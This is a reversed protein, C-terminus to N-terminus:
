RNIQMVLFDPATRYYIIGLIGANSATNMDLMPLANLTDVSKFWLYHEFPQHIHNNDVSKGNEKSLYESGLFHSHKIHYTDVIDEPIYYFPLFSKPFRAEPFLSKNQYLVSYNYTAQIELTDIAGYNDKYVYWGSTGGIYLKENEARYQARESSNGISTRRELVTIKWADSLERASMRFICDSDLNHQLQLLLDELNHVPRLNKCGEAHAINQLSIFILWVAFFSIKKMKIRALIQVSDAVGDAHRAHTAHM